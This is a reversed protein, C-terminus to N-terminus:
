QSVIKISITRDDTRGGTTVIHCVVDYSTAETGGSIMSTVTTGTHSATAATIGTGATVTATSITDSVPTLWKSWDWVYDLVANPDKTFTKFAM